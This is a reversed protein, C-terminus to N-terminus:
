PNFVHLQMSLTPASTVLAARLHPTPSFSVISWQTGDNALFSTSDAPIPTNLGDFKLGIGRAKLYAEKRTWLDFFLQRQEDSGYMELQMVEHTTFFTHAITMIDIERRTDEIDIGVAHDWAFACLMADNVHALNFQLRSDSIYPKGHEGDNITIQEPPQELYQSLLLRLQGRAAIFRQRHLPQRFREARAREYVSLLTLYHPLQEPANDLASHWVAIDTSSLENM